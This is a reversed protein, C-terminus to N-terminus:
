GIEPERLYLPGEMEGAAGKERFQIEALTALGLLRKEPDDEEVRFGPRELAYDSFLDADPGVFSVEDEGDLAALLTAQSVDLYDGMRQGGRYLASYVRNKRADLVPVVSQGPKEWGFAMCDLTPVGVWPLGLALSLGKATSIGIRLGTFSGPGRACAILDIDRLNVSAESLCSEISPLLTESHRFGSEVKTIMHDGSKKVGVALLDTSTDFVLINM